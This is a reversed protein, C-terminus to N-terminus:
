GKTKAREKPALFDLEKEFVRKGLEKFPDEFLIVELTWFFMKM